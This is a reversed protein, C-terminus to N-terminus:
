LTIVSAYPGALGASVTTQFMSSVYDVTAKGVEIGTKVIRVIFEIVGFIITYIFLAIKVILRRVFRGIELMIDISFFLDMVMVECYLNVSESDDISGTYEYTNINVIDKLDPTKKFQEKIKKQFYKASEVDEIKRDNDNFWYDITETGNGNDHRALVKQYGPEVLNFVIENALDAVRALKVVTDQVLIIKGSNSIPNNWLASLLREHLPEKESKDKKGSEYDKRDGEILTKNVYEIIKPANQILMAAAAIKLALDKEGERILHNLQINFFALIPPPIKPM